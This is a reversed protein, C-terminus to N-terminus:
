EWVARRTAKPPLRDEFEHIRRDGTILPLNMVEATAYILGDAPDGHFGESRLSAARAAIEPTIAVVQRPEALATVMWQEASMTESVQRLRRREILLAVEYLSFAAVLQTTSRTLVRRARVPLREAAVTSIVWAQTDLVCSSTGRTM